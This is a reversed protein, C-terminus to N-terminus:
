YNIFLPDVAGLRQMKLAHDSIIRITSTDSIFISNRGQPEQPPDGVFPDGEKWIGDEHQAMGEGGWTWINSGAIPAGSRASDYIASYLLALYRDRAKTPAYIQYNGSDRGIGFEELVIPKGLKRSMELHESIYELAKIESAPLTEDIKQPNFWGWNLPWLHMTTYDIAPSAHAGIFVEGSWLSGATGENGTSVLHNPDLSHIYKATRDIWEYYIPINKRGFEDERGPRPENALQWAMITPDESYKRGNFTNKRTIIKKLFDNYLNVAEPTSYFRASYNMFGEYGGLTDEPDSVPEGTAWSVYQAMGGSWEWYNNLYLVAHMNRKAMEALIFDLGLLLSDNLVRPARQLAPKISRAIGSEESAALLRLNTLSHRQLFDL